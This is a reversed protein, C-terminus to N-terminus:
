PNRAGQNPECWVHTVLIQTKGSEQGGQRTSPQNLALYVLCLYWFQLTKLIKTM